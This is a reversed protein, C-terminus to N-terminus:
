GDICWHLNESQGGICQRLAGIQRQTNFPTTDNSHQDSLFTVKAVLKTTDCFIESTRQLELAWSSHMFCKTVEFGTALTVKRLSWWELSVVCKLIDPALANVSLAFIIYQRM